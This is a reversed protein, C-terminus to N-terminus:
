DKIIVQYEKPIEFVEDPVSSFIIEKVKCIYGAEENEILLVMGKLSSFALHMNPIDETYYVIMKEIRHGVEKTVIAKKCKYGLIEKIEGEKYEIKMINNLEPITLPTGKMAIPKPLIKSQIMVIKSINYGDKLYRRHSILSDIERNFHFTSEYYIIKDQKFYIFEERESPMSDIINQQIMKRTQRHLFSHRQSTDQPDLIVDIAQQRHINQGLRKSMQDFYKDSLQMLYSIKGEIPKQAQLQIACALLIIIFFTTRINQM